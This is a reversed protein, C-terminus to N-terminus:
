QSYHSLFHKFRAMIIELDELNPLFVIRIHDPEKLNFGTGQVILVKEQILLDLVLQEDSKLNFKKVDLKPFLYLAGKPKVCSVGPIKVVESETM